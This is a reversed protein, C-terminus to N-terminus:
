EEVSLPHVSQLWVLDALQPHGACPLLDRGRALSVTSSLTMTPARQRVLESFFARSHGHFLDLHEDSCLVSKRAPPSGIPSRFFSSTARTSAVWGFSRSSSSTMPPSILGLALLDDLKDEIDPLMPMVWITISCSMFAIM